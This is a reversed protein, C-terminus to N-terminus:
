YNPINLGLVLDREIHLIGNKEKAQVIGSGGKNNFRNRQVPTLLPDDNFTYDDLYYPITDHEKVIVHIHEPANRQPYAGPRFTYFEYRGDQATKIWGRLYGHRRGWGKANDGRPYIGKRNTHYIYVIINNAPTKGDSKFVTGSIKLKPSTTHFDPLTDRYDLARDGYELLAECGECAGGVERLQTNDPEQAQCSFPIICILLTLLRNRYSYM